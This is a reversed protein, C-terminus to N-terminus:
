SGGSLLWWFLVIPVAAFATLVTVLLAGFLWREPGAKPKELAATPIEIIELNRTARKADFWDLILTVSRRNAKFVVDVVDGVGPVYGLVLDATSNWGIGLLVKFPVRLRLAEFLIYLSVVWSVWDGGGPILGIIPDLGVRVKLVPVEFQDDMLKALRDLRTLSREIRRHEQDRVALAREDAM